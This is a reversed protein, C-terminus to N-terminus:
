GQSIVLVCPITEVVGFQFLDNQHFEDLIACGLVAGPDGSKEREIAVQHSTEVHVLAPFHEGLEAFHDLLVFPQAM